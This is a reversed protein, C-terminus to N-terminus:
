DMSHVDHADLISQRRGCAECYVRNGTAPAIRQTRRRVFENYRDTGIAEGCGDCYRVPQRSLITGGGSSRMEEDPLLNRRLLTYRYTPLPTVGALHESGQSKHMLVAKRDRTSVMAHDAFAAQVLTGVLQFL